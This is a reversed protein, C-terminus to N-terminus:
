ILRKIVKIFHRKISTNSTKKRMVKRLETNDTSHKTPYAASNRQTMKPKRAFCIHPILLSHLFYIVPLAFAFLRALFFLLWCSYFPLIKNEFHSCRFGPSDLPSYQHIICINGMYHWQKNNKRIFSPFCSTEWASSCPQPRPGRGTM